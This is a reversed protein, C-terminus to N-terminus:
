KINNMCNLIPVGYDQEKFEKEYRFVGYRIIDKVYNKLRKM